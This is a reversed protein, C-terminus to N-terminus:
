QESAKTVLPLQDFVIPGRVERAKHAHIMGEEWTFHPIAYPSDEGFELGNDYAAIVNGCQGLSGWSDPHQWRIFYLERHMLKSVDIM